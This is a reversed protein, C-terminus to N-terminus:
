VLVYLLAATWGLFFVIPAGLLYYKSSVGGVLRLWGPAQGIAEDPDAVRFRPDDPYKAALSQLKIQWVKQFLSTRGLSLTWVLSLVAGGLCLPWNVSVFGGNLPVVCLLFGNVALLVQLKNTKIPNEQRWLELLAHYAQLDKTTDDDPPMPPHTHSGNLAHVLTLRVAVFM